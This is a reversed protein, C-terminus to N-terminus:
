RITQINMRTMGSELRDLKERRSATVIAERIPIIKEEMAINIRGGAYLNVSRFTDHSGLSRYELRYSGRPLTIVYYGEPNTMVGTGLERVQVSAGQIPEGTDSNTVFGSLIVKGGLRIDAPNGLTIVEGELLSKAATIVTDTMAMVATDGAERMFSRRVTFNRTIIINGEEDETCFLGAPSVVRDIVAFPLANEWAGSVRIDVTWSPNFFVRIGAKREVALALTDFPVGSYSGSFTGTKVQGRALPALLLLFMILIVNRM